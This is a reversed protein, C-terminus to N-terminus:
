KIIDVLIFRKDKSIPKCGMIKVRDGAKSKNEEDHVKYRTRKIIQKKYLGHSAKMVVSVVRTKDMKDSFVVGEVVKNKGFKKEKM